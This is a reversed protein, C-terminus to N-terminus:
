IENFIKSFASSNLDWVISLSSFAPFPWYYCKSCRKYRYWLLWVWQIEFELYEYTILIIFLDWNNEGFDLSDLVSWKFLVSIRWLGFFGKIKVLCVSLEANCGTLCIKWKLLITSHGAWLFIIWFPSFYSRVTRVLYNKEVKLSSLM